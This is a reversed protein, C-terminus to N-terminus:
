FIETPSSEDIVRCQGIKEDGEASNFDTITDALDCIFTDAGKGGKMKDKGEGGDLEDIDDGGDLEDNGDGGKM